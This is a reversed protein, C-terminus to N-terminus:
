DLRAIVAPSNFWVWRMHETVYSLRAFMMADDLGLVQRWEAELDGTWCGAFYVYQLQQGVQGPSIDMPSYQKHPENSVTFAGPDYGGHSAVFIFRGNQIAENFSDESLPLVRVSDEGYRERGAWVLPHFAMNVAWRPPTFTEYLGPMPIYGGQTYLIYVEATEVPANALKTSYMGICVVWALLGEILLSWYVALKLAQYKSAIWSILPIQPLRGRWAGIVAVLWAFTWVSCAAVMSYILVSCLLQMPFVDISFARYEVMTPNWLDLIIWAQIQTTIWDLILACLLTVSFALSYQMHHNLLRNHQRIVGSFWLLPALGFYCAVSLIRNKREVTSIHSRQRSHAARHGASIVPFHVSTSYKM